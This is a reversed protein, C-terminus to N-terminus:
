PQMVILWGARDFSASSNTVVSPAAVNSFHEIGVIRRSIARPLSDGTRMPRSKRNRRDSTSVAIPQNQKKERRPVSAALM